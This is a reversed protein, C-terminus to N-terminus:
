DSGFKIDTSSTLVAINTTGTNTLVNSNNDIIDNKDIEESYGNNGKVYIGSKFSIDGKNHSSGSSFRLVSLWLFINYLNRM